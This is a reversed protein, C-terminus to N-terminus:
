SSDPNEPWLVLCQFDQLNSCGFKNFIIVGYRTRSVWWNHKEAINEVGTLGEGSQAAVPVWHTTLSSAAHMMSPRM